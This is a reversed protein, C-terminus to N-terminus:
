QTNKPPPEEQRLTGYRQTKDWDMMIRVLSSGPFTCQISRLWRILGVVYLKIAGPVGGIWLGVMRMLPHNARSWVVWERFFFGAPIGSNGSKEKGLYLGLFVKGKLLKQNRYSKRHLHVDVVCSCFDLLEWELSNSCERLYCMVGAWVWM